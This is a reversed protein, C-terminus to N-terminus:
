VAGPGEPTSASDIVTQKRSNQPASQPERGKTEGAPEDRDTRWPLRRLQEAVARAGGSEYRSAWLPLWTDDDLLFKWDDVVGLRVLLFPVPSTFPQFSANYIASAANGKFFGGMMFGDNVYSPVALQQLLDDFFGQARDLALDTFVVVIAKHNADDETPQADLLVRQYDSILGAADLVSRGAVQEPALWLTKRALAGPVFPCVPGARGLDKNPRAVFAKIWDSVTRLANLDSESLKRTESAGELEDLLFLNAALQEHTVSM